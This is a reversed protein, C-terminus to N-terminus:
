GATVEKEPATTEEPTPKPLEVRIPAPKPEPAVVAPTV